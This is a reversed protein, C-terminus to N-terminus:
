ILIEDTLCQGDSLLIIPSLHSCVGHWASEIVGTSVRLSGRSGV